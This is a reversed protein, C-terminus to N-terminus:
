YGVVYELVYLKRRSLGVIFPAAVTIIGMNEDDENVLIIILQILM